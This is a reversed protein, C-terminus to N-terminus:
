MVPWAMLMEPPWSICSGSAALRQDDTAPGLSQGCVLWREVGLEGRIREFEAVYNKPAYIAPDDPSPSRGHGYMEVVVPRAVDSLADLNLVWQARSSLFGHVLLLYPGAGDHVEYHLHGNAPDSM